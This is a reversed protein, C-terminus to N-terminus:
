IFLRIKLYNFPYKVGVTAELELGDLNNADQVLEGLELSNHVGLVDVIFDRAGQLAVNVQDLVTGTITNRGTLSRVAKRLYKATFDVQSTINFERTKVNTMDSTLQHRHRVPANDATQEFVWLGGGSLIKMQAKGFYDSSGKVSTFGPLNEHTLPKEPRKAAFQGGLAAAAYYGEVLFDIGDIPTGLRDPATVVVRRNTYLRAKDSYAVAEDTRNTIPAGKIKLSFPRDIIQEAIVSGGEADFFFTNSFSLNSNNLTISGGSISAVLYRNPDSEFEIYVGDAETLSSPTLGQKQLIADLTTLGTEVVNTPVTLANGENGSAVLTDTMRDPRKPNLICVRESKIEPESMSSVHAGLLAGVADSHTLPVITYIDKNEIIEFAAAYAATTGEPSADTVEAVGFGQIELNPAARMACWLGFGLPNRTDLPGFNAELTIPDGVKITTAEAAAPSFDLRLGSYSIYVQVQGPAPMGAADFIIFPNIVLRTNQGSGLVQIEASPRTATAASDVDKAVFYIYSGLATSLPVERDLRVNTNIGGPSVEAIVGVLSDTTGNWVEDGVDPRYANTGSAGSTTGAILGLDALTITSAASIEVAAQMGGNGPATLVLFSSGNITATTPFIDNIALRLTAEDVVSTGFRITQLPGGNMGLVLSKGQVDNVYDVATLDVNGTVALPSAGVTQTDGGTHIIPSSTDGDGDDVVSAANRHIRYRASDRSLLRLNGTGDGLYIEVSDWDVSVNTLRGNPDPLANKALVLSRGTTHTSGTGTYLWGVTIGFAVAVAPTTLPGVLISATDGKKATMLRVTKNGNDLSVLEAILGPMKGSQVISVVEGATHTALPFTVAIPASGNISLELVEGALGAYTTGGDDSFEILAAGKPQSTNNVAGTDDVADVIEMLPGVICTPLEPASFSTPTALFRQEVQTGVEEITDVM